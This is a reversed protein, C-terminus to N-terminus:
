CRWRHIRLGRPWVDVRVYKFANMVKESELNNYQTNPEYLYDDVNNKDRIIYEPDDAM